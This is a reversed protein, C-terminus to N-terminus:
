GVESEAYAALQLGPKWNPTTAAWRLATYQRERDKQNIVDLYTDPRVAKVHNILKYVAAVSPGKQKEPQEQRAACMLATMGDTGALGLFPFAANSPSSAVAEKM